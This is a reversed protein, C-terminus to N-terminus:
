LSLDGTVAVKLKYDYRLASSLNSISNKDVWMRLRYKTTKSDKNTTHSHILYSKKDNNFKLVGEDGSNIVHSVLIPAMVEVEGRNDFKTLYIKINSDSLATYGNTVPEKKIYIKYNVGM